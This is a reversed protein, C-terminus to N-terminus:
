ILSQGQYEGVLTKLFSIISQVEHPPIKRGIQYKAMVAIAEELTQASGDHFYPPTLVALRLSPVKFMHRHMSHGTMNMRGLDEQTTEQRSSFYDGLIGFKQFLNGGVNAGQHCAVCGYAKFLRYGEKEEKTIAQVNGRLYQDFRSNPTLLSRVFTGLANKISSPQIGHTYLQSFLRGYEADQSVKKVVDRWTSGMEMPNTIPGDVQEYVDEARGDWFQRFNLGSNFVTPTNVNGPVAGIGLSPSQQDAGGGTQLSHCTACSITNDASLRPDHFLKEGLAVKSPDLNFSFPIPQIPEHITELVKQTGPIIETMPESNFECSCLLTGLIVLFIMITTVSSM